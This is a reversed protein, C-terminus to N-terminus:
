ARAGGRRRFTARGSPGRWALGLGLALALGAAALSVARGLRLSAPDFVFRVEHRGAEVVAGLIDGYVRVVPVAEGDITAGWGDVNKEALVLLRRGPADTAVAIRGPRDEVLWASGPPGPELPIPSPVVATTAPDIAALAAAPDPDAVVESVLRV